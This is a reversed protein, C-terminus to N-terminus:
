YKECSELLGQSTLRVIRNAKCVKQKGDIATFKTDQALTGASVLDGPMDHFTVRRPQFLVTSEGVRFESKASPVIEKVGGDSSRILIDSTIEVQKGKVEITAFKEIAAWFLFQNPAFYSLDSYRGVIPIKSAGVTLYGKGYLLCGTKSNLLKGDTDFTLSVSSHPYCDVGLELSYNPGQYLGRDLKASKIRGIDDFILEEGIRV